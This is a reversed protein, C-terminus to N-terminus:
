PKALMSYQGTCPDTGWIELDLYCLSNAIEWSLIGTSPSYAIDYVVPIVGPDAVSPVWTHPGGNNITYYYLQYAIEQSQYNLCDYLIWGNDVKNETVSINRILGGSLTLARLMDGPQLTQFRFWLDNNPDIADPHGDGDSDTWGIHRLTHYCLDYSSAYIMICDEQSGTCYACNLNKHWLFGYHDDCDNSNNCQDPNGYDYEDAAGFLHLTEHAIIHHTVSYGPFRFYVSMAFPARFKEAGFIQEDRFLMSYGRGGNPFTRTTENKIVFYTFGWDCHYQRRVRNANAFVGDWEEGMGLYAMADDIWGFQWNWTPFGTNYPYKTYIPEESTPVDRHIEYVWTVDVNREYAQQTLNEYALVVQAIATDEQATTWNETTGNSEMLMLCVASKGVLFEATYMNTRSVRLGEPGKSSKGSGEILETGCFFETDTVASKLPAFGDGTSLLVNWCFQGINEDAKHGSQDTTNEEHEVFSPVEAAFRKFQSLAMECIYESTQPFEHIIRGGYSEILDRNARRDAKREQPLRIYCNSRASLNSAGLLMVFLGVVLRISRAM